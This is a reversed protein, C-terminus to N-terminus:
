KRTLKKTAVAYSAKHATLTVKGKKVSGKIHLTCRGLKHTTCRAKVGKGKAKVKAHRVPAGADTVTVKVATARAHKWHKPKAKVSLGPLIRQAFIGQGANVVADLPGRTGDAALAYVSDYPLAVTRVAGFRTAGTDSRAASLTSGSGNWAVWLRGGATTSLAVHPDQTSSPLSLPAAAGVRWVATAHCTPYGVCYATWVSGDARAVLPTPEGAATFVLSGGTASGPARAAAGIPKLTTPDIRQVYVGPVKDVLVYALYVAGRAVVLNADYANSVPTITATTAGARLVIGSLGPRATLIAGSPLAVAATGESRDDTDIATPASWTAGTSSTSAYLRGTDATTRQGGLVAHLLGGSVVLKPDYNLAPWRAAITSTGGVADTPGLTVQQASHGTGVETVYGVHLDGDATRALGPVAIIDVAGQSIRTWGNSGAAQAPAAVAASASALALALAPLIIARRM